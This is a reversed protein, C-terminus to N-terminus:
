EAESLEPLQVGVAQVDSRVQPDEQGELFVLHAKNALIPLIYVAPQFGTVMLGLVSLPGELTVGVRAMGGRIVGLRRIWGGVMGGWTM